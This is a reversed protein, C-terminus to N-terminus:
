SKIRVPYMQYLVYKTDGAADVGPFPVCGNVVYLYPQYALYLTGETDDPVTQAFGVIDANSITGREQLQAPTPSASVNVAVTTLLVSLLTSLVAM